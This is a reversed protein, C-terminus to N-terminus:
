HVENEVRPGDESQCISVWHGEVEIRMALMDLQSCIARRPTEMITLEATLEPMARGGHMTACFGQINAVRGLGVAEPFVRKPARQWEDLVALEVYKPEIKLDLPGPLTTVNVEAAWDVESELQRRVDERNFWRYQRCTWWGGLVTDTKNSIFAEVRFCM